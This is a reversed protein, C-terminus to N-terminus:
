GQTAPSLDMHVRYDVIRGDAVEIVTVCPMEVPVGDRGATEISFRCFTQPGIHAIQDITHRVWPLADATGQTAAVVAARGRLPPASGFRYYDDEAFFSGFTVADGADVAACMTRVMQERRDLDDVAITV